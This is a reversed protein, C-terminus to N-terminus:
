APSANAKKRGSSRFRDIKLKELLHDKSYGVYGNMKLLKIGDPGESLPLVWLIPYVMRSQCVLGNEM